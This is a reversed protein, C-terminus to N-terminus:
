NDYCNYDTNTYVRVSRSALPFPDSLFDEIIPEFSTLDTIIGDLDSDSTIWLNFLVIYYVLPLTLLCIIKCLNGVRRSRRMINSKFNIPMKDEGIKANYMKTASGYANTSLWNCLFM